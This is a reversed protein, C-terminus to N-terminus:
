LIRVDVTGDPKLRKIRPWFNSGLDDEPAPSFTTNEECVTETVAIKFLLNAFKTAASSVFQSM